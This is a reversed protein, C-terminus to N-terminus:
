LFLINLLDFKTWRAVYGSAKKPSGGDHRAVNTSRIRQSKQKIRRTLHDINNAEWNNEYIKRELITWIVEILRAQPVKRLIILVLFMRFIRRM